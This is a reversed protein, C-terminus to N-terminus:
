LARPQEYVTLTNIDSPCCEGLSNHGKICQTCYKECSLSVPCAIFAITVRREKWQDEGLREV